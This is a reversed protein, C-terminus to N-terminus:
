FPEELVVRLVVVLAARSGPELLVAPATVACDEVRAGLTHSLLHEFASLVLKTFRRVGLWAGCPTGVPGRSPRALDLKFITVFTWLGDATAAFKPYIFM